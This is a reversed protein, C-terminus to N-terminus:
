SIVKVRIVIGIRFINNRDLPEFSYRFFCCDFFGAKEAILIRNTAGSTSLPLEGYIPQFAKPLNLLNLPISFDM